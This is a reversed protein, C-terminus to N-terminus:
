SRKATVGIGEPLGSSGSTYIGYLLNDATGGTVPNDASERAIEPWQSDLCLKNIGADPLFEKLRQQTLLVPGLADRIMFELRDKPYSPDLAIAAGGAKIVALLGVVMEVSRDVCIGVLM